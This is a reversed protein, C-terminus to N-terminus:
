TVHQKATLAKMEDLFGRLVDEYETVYHLLDRRAIVGVLVGNRVVPIRRIHHKQMISVVKLLITDEDVTIVGATMISKVTESKLDPRMVSQMLNYETVIGLLQNRNDVVPLGSINHQLLLAIADDVAADEKITVVDSKMVNHCRCLSTNIKRKCYRALKDKLVAPEFPKVLYDTCGAEAAEVVRERTREATVMVIPVDSPTARIARLVELGCKGPMGWDLLILDLKNRQFQALAENGDGAEIVNEVELTELAKVVLRRMAIDDDAVLINRSLYKDM